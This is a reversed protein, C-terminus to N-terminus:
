AKLKKRVYEIIPREFLIFSGYSLIVTTLFVIFLLLFSNNFNFFKFNVAILYRMVVMHWMYFGFSLEGLWVLARHSFISSVIGKQFAFIFIILSIPIWYYASYRFVQPVYKHLVFFFIMVLISAWEFFSYNLDINKLRVEEFVRFIFMGIAFDVLRALPNIDFLFHQFTEGVMIMLVPIILMAVALMSGARKIPLRHLGVVMLPFLVYFFMEVSLSWSPGNFSFYYSELPIFSQFLFANVVTHKMFDILSYDPTERIILPIMVCFTLLHMPYIRAIRKVLFTKLAIEKGSIREHYTYSLIFGSLVFFFTVGIYGEKLVNDFLWMMEPSDDRLIDAHSVFVMVAFIFRFSTLPKIIFTSM